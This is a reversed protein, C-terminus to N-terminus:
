YDERVRQYTVRVWMIRSKVTAPFTESSSLNNIFVYFMIFYFLSVETIRGGGGFVSAFTLILEPLRGILIHM